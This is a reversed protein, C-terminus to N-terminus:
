FKIPLLAAALLRLLEWARRTIAFSSGTAMRPATELCRSRRLHSKFCSPLLRVPAVAPSARDGSFRTKLGARRAAGRRGRQQPLQWLAEGRGGGDRPLGRQPCSSALCSSLSIAKGEARGGASRRRHRGPQEAAGTPSCLWPEWPREAGAPSVARRAARRGASRTM